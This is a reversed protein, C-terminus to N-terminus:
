YQFLLVYNVKPLLENTGQFSDKEITELEDSYLFLSKVPATFSLEGTKVVPIKNNQLELSNLSTFKSIGSPIKTLNNANLGLNVLSDANPSDGMWTLINDVSEDGLDPNEYLLFSQIGNLIPFSTLQDLNSCHHIELTSLKPLLPLTQFSAALNQSSSIILTVLNSFGNLFKFDLETLDCNTVEVSTVIEKTSEFAM